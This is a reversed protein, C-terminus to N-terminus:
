PLEEAPINPDTSGSRGFSNLKIGRGTGSLFVESSSDTKIVTDLASKSIIKSQGETIVNGAVSIYKNGGITERYDGLVKLSMDGEVTGKINGKIYLNVDKDVQINMSGKDEGAGVYISASGDLTIKANGKIHIFDDGALIEYNNGVVKHVRTGNPDKSWGNGVEEFSGSPHYTHHREKEPTDDWEEVMGSKTAFVKNNPYKTKYPSEPESWKQQDLGDLAVLVDKKRNDKKSKVITKDIEDGTALRNTDPVNAETPYIGSPDNFGRQPNAIEMPLGGVSMMVVPQQANSGDRFFGFVHSGTVLGTPSRGVGSISASTIDQLPHAWPLDATKLTGLDLPHYGFVRVRVRGLKMPDDIDEVVGFWWVFGAQGMFDIM